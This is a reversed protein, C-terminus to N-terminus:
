NKMSKRSKSLQGSRGIFNRAQQLLMKKMDKPCVYTMDISRDGEFTLTHWLTWKIGLDRAGSM